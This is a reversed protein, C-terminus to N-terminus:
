SALVEPPNSESFYLQKAYDGVMRRASFQFPLHAMAERMMTLWDTPMGENNRRYFAPIVESELVDYLFQADEPDQIEPDKYDASAEHGISWGNRGNFGEPWWGDLISLNMGGHAAVKQGSTGSAEYPRRPNNLWVDAGSVLMRGVSMDYNELLVVRGNFQPMRTIEYIRQIFWKGDEDAPHAKGAYILQVPFEPNNLIRAARDLDHFFLPARKYTAFRRAFGITLANPDLDPHQVLTQSQAYTTAADVLARRLDCRYAWLDENPVDWIKKWAEPDGQWNGLRSDLFHRARPSTWTPLHIGNTVHGIPVDDVATDPYKHAWQARAVEGNLSSVGNCREAMNLGLVTMTFQETDDDPNIRGYSLLNNVDLHANNAFGSMEHRFLDPDFRDHGAMVPTHTTFVTRARIWNIAEDVSSGMALQERLLEFALFACHGENMHYVSPQIGCARLMRLGGIGLIIEQQIRTRRNGGYLRSTLHRWEYKNSDVDADLLLMETRGIHLRWARLHLVEHGLEVAITIPEGNSNEVLELPLQTVDMAPYEAQQWGKKDFFQKFYGDRLLLGVAVMPLGLDSAAKTHDGALVGLGGSYLPLSEHLGYEMCFYGVTRQEDFDSGSAMYSMFREYIATVRGAFEPDALVFPDPDALARLPNNKTARFASPNLQQFLALADPNWSWWLNKSLATLKQITTMQHGLNVIVISQHYLLYRNSTFTTEALSPIPELM